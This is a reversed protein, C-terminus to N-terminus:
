CSWNLQISRICLPEGWYVTGNLAEVEILVKNANEEQTIKRNWTFTDDNNICADGSSATQDLKTDDKFVSITCRVENALTITNKLLNYTVSVQTPNNVGIEIDFKLGGVTEGNRVFCDIYTNDGFAMAYDESESKVAHVKTELNSSVGTVVSIESSPKNWFQNLGVTRDFTFEKDAAKVMSLRSASKASTLGFALAGSIALLSAFTLILVKKKM